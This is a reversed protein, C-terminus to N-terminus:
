FHVPQAQSIDSSPQSCPHCQCAPLPLSCSGFKPTVPHDVLFFLWRVAYICLFLLRKRPRPQCECRGRKGRPPLVSGRRRTPCACALGRGSGLRAEQPHRYKSHQGREAVLVARPAQGTEWGQEDGDADLCRETLCCLDGTRYANGM